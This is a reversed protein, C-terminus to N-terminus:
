QEHVHLYLILAVTAGGPGEASSSCYLSLVVLLLPLKLRQTLLLEDVAAPAIAVSAAISPVHDGGESVYLVISADTRIDGVWVQSIHAYIM